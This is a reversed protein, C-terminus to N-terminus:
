DAKTGVAVTGEGFEVGAARLADEIKTLTSVRPRVKEGEILKLGVASLGAAKALDERRWGLGARAMRVQAATIAM